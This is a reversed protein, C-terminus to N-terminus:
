YGLYWYYSFINDKNVWMVQLKHEGTGINQIIEAILFLLFLQLSTKKKRNKKEPIYTISPQKHIPLWAKDFSLRYFGM